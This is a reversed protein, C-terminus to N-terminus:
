KDEQLYRYVTKESVDLRSAVEAVKGKVEFVGNKRLERVIRRKESTRLQDATRDGLGRSLIEDIREEVTSGIGFTEQKHLTGLDLILAKKLTEIGLVLDDVDVNVCLLGALEEGDRIFFTSSRFTKEENGGIYNVVFPSNLYEKSQILKRGYDTMSNGPRRGTLSPHTVYLISHDPDRVDHILVECKDGNMRAIFDALPAYQMLFERRNM